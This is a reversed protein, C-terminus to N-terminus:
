LEKGDRFWKDYNAVSCYGALGKLFIDADALRGGGFDDLDNYDRTTGIVTNDEVRMRLVKGFRKMGEDTLTVPPVVAIPSFGGDVSMDVTTGLTNLASLFRKLTNAMTQTKKITEIGSM